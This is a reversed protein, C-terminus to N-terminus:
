LKISPPLGIHFTLEEEMIRKLHHEHGETTVLCDHITFIPIGPFEKTFRKSIVDIILYSELSQLASALLESHKSPKWFKVVEYVGPFMQQFIRKPLADDQAFFRNDSFLVQFMMVKMYNRDLERGGPLLDLQSKCQELMGEYFAGESALKSFRAVEQNDVSNM